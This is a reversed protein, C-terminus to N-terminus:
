IPHQARRRGTSLPTNLTCAPSADRKSEQRPRQEKQRASRPAHAAKFQTNSPCRGPTRLALLASRRLKERRAGAKISRACRALGGLLRRTPNFARRSADSGGRWRKQCLGGGREARCVGVLAGCIKVAAGAGGVRRGGRASARRIREGLVGGRSHRARGATARAGRSPAPNATSLALGMWRSLGRACLSM